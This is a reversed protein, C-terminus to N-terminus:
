TWLHFDLNLNVNVTFLRILPSVSTRVKFDRKPIRIQIIKIEFEFTDVVVSAYNLKTKMWHEKSMIM